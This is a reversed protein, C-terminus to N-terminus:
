SWIRPLPYEFFLLGSFFFSLIKLHFDAGYLFLSWDYFFSWNTFMNVHLCTFMFSCFAGFNFFYDLFVFIIGLINACIFIFSYRQWM